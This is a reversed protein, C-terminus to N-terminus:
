AAQSLWLEQMQMRVTLGAHTLLMAPWTILMKAVGWGGLIQLQVVTHCDRGEPPHCGSLLVYPAEYRRRRMATPILVHLTTASCTSSGSAALWFTMIYLVHVALNAQVLAPLWQRPGHRNGACMNTVSAPHSCLLGYCACFLAFVATIATHRTSPTLWMLGLVIWCHCLPM